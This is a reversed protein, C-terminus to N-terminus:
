PTSARPSTNISIDASRRPLDACDRFAKMGAPTIARHQRSRRWPRATTSGTGRNSNTWSATSEPAHCFSEREGLDQMRLGEPAAQLELLVDYWTLPIAGATELDAEIARVARHHAVLMARWAAIEGM